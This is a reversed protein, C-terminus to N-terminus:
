KKIYRQNRSRKTQPYQIRVFGADILPKLAYKQFSVRSKLGMMMMLETSRYPVSPEM